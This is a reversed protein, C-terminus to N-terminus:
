DARLAALWRSPVSVSNRTASGDWIRCSTQLGTAENPNGAYRGDDGGTQRMSCLLNATCRTMREAGRFLPQALHKAKVRQRFLREVVIGRGLGRCIQLCRTITQEVIRVGIVSLDLSGYMTFDSTCAAFIRSANSGGPSTRRRRSMTSRVPYPLPIHKRRSCVRCLHPNM